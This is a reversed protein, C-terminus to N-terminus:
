EDFFKLEEFTPLWDMVEPKQQVLLIVAAIQLALAVGYTFLSARLNREYSWKVGLMGTLFAIVLLATNYSDLDDLSTPLNVEAAVPIALIFLAFVVPLWLLLQYVSARAANLVSRDKILLWAAIWIFLANEAVAIGLVTLLKIIPDM